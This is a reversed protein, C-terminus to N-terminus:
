PNRNPSTVMQNSSALTPGIAGAEIKRMLVSGYVEVPVRGSQQPLLRLVNRSASKTLTIRLSLISDMAGVAGDV